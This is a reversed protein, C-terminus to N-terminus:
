EKTRIKRHKLINSFQPILRRKLLKKQFRKINYILNRFEKRSFIIEATIRNEMAGRKVEEICKMRIMLRSFCKFINKTMPNKDIRM